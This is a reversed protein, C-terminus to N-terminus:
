RIGNPPKGLGLINAGNGITGTSWVRLVAVRLTTGAPVAPFTVDRGRLTTVKVAGTAGVYLGAFPGHVDNITDSATCAIADEYDLVVGM